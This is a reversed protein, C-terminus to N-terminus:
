RVLSSFMIVFAKYTFLTLIVTLLTYTTLYSRRKDVVDYSSTENSLLLSKEWDTWRILFKDVGLAATQSCATLVSVFIIFKASGVAKLYNKVNELLCKNRVDDEEDEEEIKPQENKSNIEMSAANMNSLIRKLKKGNDEKFMGKSEVQGNDMVIVNHTENLFQIQHTVLVITKNCLFKQFCEVFIHNGVHTDVASLVDDLLYIDAKRYVARALNIRAKQGGSLSIGREAVITEDGHEFSKLDAHLACANIVDLYRQKDFKENFVINNKFTDNFLWPDQTAYSIEGRVDIRGDDLELEGAIAQLLSSKGSGVQGVVVNFSGLKISLNVKEIGYCKKGIDNTWAGSANDFIISGDNVSKSLYAPPENHELLFEQLRRASLLGDNTAKLALSWYQVMSINLYYYYFSLTFVKDATLDHGTLIYAALSLLMSLKAAVRLVMLIAYVFWSKLLLAIEQGRIKKMTKAFANEWGYMKILQIGNILESVFQLRQDTSEDINKGYKAMINSFWLQFPILTLLLFVGALGSIGMSRYILFSFVITEVPGKYLDANNEIPGWLNEVDRSILNTVRGNLGETIRSRPLSLIKDYVLCSCGVKMRMFWQCVFAIYHRYNIVPILSCIFLGAAYLYAHHKSTDSNEDTFYKILSALLMPQVSRLILECMMYYFGALCVSPGCIRFMMKFLSPKAKQEEQKWLKRFNKGINKTDHDELTKYINENSTSKGFFNRAIDKLYSLLFFIKFSNLM